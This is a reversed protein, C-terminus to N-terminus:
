VPPGNRGVEFAARLVQGLLRASREMSYRQEVTRRGAMGIRERLSADAILRGVGEVWEDPSSALLGNEGHRILELNAAVASCVVPIGMGMCQLAKFASKGRTWDDDPLPVIGVDFEQLEEVESAASWRRWTAPVEGLEPPHASVVHVEVHHREAIRRLVPAFAELHAQSTASGTWGIVVRGNERSWKKPAYRELDISSPVVAVNPNYRQAYRALHDNGAVVHRSMRCLAATKGPFKLRGFVRNQATTDLLYIADDFDFVMPKKRAIVREVLAPGALFAARHVLVVDFGGLRNVARLRRATARLIMHAKDPWRHPSYLLELEEEELFPWLEVDIGDAALAPQWQEIRYRQSPTMGAPYPVLACVRM